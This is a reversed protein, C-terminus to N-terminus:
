QPMWPPPLPFETVTWFFYASGVFYVVLVASAIPLLWAAVPGFGVFFFRRAVAAFKTSEFGSSYTRLPRSAYYIVPVYYFVHAFFQPVQNELLFANLPVIGLNSFVVLAIEAAMLAYVYRFRQLIEFSDIRGIAYLAAMLGLPTVIYALAWYGFGGAPGAGRDFDVLLLSPLLVAVAILFQLILQFIITRNANGQRALRVPLAIVWFALAFFATLASLYMLLSFSVTLSFVELSSLPRRRTAWLFLGLFIPMVLSPVPFFFLTPLGIAGNELKSGLVLSWLFERFPWGAVATVSLLVLVLTWNWAVYRRLAIALLCSTAMPLCVGAIVFLMVPSVWYSSTELIWQSAFPFFYYRDFLSAVDFNARMKENLVAPWVWSMCLVGVFGALLSVRALEKRDVHRQLARGVSRPPGEGTDLSM